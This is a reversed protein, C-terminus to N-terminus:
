PSAEDFEWCHLQWNHAEVAVAGVYGAGIELARLSWRDAESEDWGTRLLEAQQDPALTVDFQDLALSLGMGKAKIFAEKRTWCNFFALARADAPLQDLCAVETASFFRRAIDDGIFDPKIHELDVGIEGLRTFACVALSGSHALNFKLPTLPPSREPALHPKGHDAYAFCLDAPAIELYRGLLKRLTGRAVIFHQRDKAFHFRAARAQEGTSLLQRLSEVAEPPQELWIRWVHVDTTPLSLEGPPSPWPQAANTLEPL